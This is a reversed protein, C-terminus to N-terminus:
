EGAGLRRELEGIAVPQDGAPDYDSVMQFRGETRPIDGIPRFQSKATVM